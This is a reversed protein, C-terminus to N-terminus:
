RDSRVIEQLAAFVTEANDRETFITFGSEIIRPSRQLMVHKGNIEVPIWHLTELGTLDSSAIEQAITLADPGTLIYQAYRESTDTFRADEMIIFKDLWSIVNAENGGSCILMASNGQSLVILHDIIRGKETTLVTQAGSGSKGILPMLDNTSMRHLLDLADVGSAEIRGFRRSGDYLAASAHAKSYKEMNM